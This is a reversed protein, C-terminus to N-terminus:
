FSDEGCISKTADREVLWFRMCERLLSAVLHFCCVLFSSFKLLPFFHFRSVIRSVPSSHALTILSSHQNSGDAGSSEAVLDTRGKGREDEGERREAM